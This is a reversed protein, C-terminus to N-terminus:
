TNSECLIHISRYNLRLTCMKKCLDAKQHGYWLETDVLRCRWGNGGYSLLYKVKYNQVLTAHVSYRYLVEYSSSVAGSPISKDSNIYSYM